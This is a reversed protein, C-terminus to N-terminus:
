YMFGLKWSSEPRSEPDGWIGLAKGSYLQIRSYQKLM